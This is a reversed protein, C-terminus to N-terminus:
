NNKIQNFEESNFFEKRISEFDINKNLLKNSWFELGEIDPERDLFTIYYKRIIKKIENM